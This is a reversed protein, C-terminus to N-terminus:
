EGTADPAEPSLVMMGCEDLRLLPNEIAVRLTQLDRLADEVGEYVQGFENELYVKRRELSRRILADDRDFKARSKALAEVVEEREWIEKATKERLERLTDRLVMPDIIRAQADPRSGLNVDYVGAANPRKVYPRNLKALLANDTVPEGDTDTLLDISFIPLYSEARRHLDPRRREKWVAAESSFSTSLVWVWRFGVWVEEISPDTRWTAYATGRDDWNSIRELANILSCGPRLLIPNNTSTQALTRRWTSPRDLSTELVRQWPIRPLLPRDWIYRQTEDRDPHPPTQGIHLVGNMWNLVSKNLLDEDEEAEEMRDILSVADDNINAIQDLAHQEDLKKREEKVIEAVQESLEDACGGGEFLFRCWIVDDIEELKFQIDSVSENFIRFGNMLVAMWAYWPADEDYDPLFIRHELKPLKRGFRDLRGIRQELRGVDAPLDLHFMASVFQLNLGEEADQSGILIWSQADDKFAAIKEERASEDSADSLNLVDYPGFYMRLASYVTAADEVDSTFCAIKPTKRTPSRLQETRWAKLEQSLTALRTERDFDSAAVSKLASLYEGEGDFIPAMTDLHRAIASRSLFSISVLERWRRSIEKDERTTAASAAVQWSVLADSLDTSWSTNDPVIRVHSLNDWPEARPRMAWGETDKRRSRLLRDHIRYTRAIHDRLMMTAQDRKETNEGSDLVEQAISIVYPDDPFMAMAGKAQTKVVFASGGPQMTMLLRGVRQRSLVKRRFGELDGKPYASPDLLHLLGFLRAENGLAPTASLLLLSEAMHALAEVQDAIPDTHDSSTAIVRHAEDIVLLDPAHRITECVGYGLVRIQDTDPDIYFRSILEKRWQSVLKDPVLVVVRLSPRDLLMQRIICGAEITKGLGVEDALLYRVLTDQLVKRVNSIQHPMLDIASSYAGTLGECASLLNRIGSLATRRRDAVAQTESCGKALTEAPDAYVDLCRVYLATEPIEKNEQNPFRVEYLTAADDENLHSIVRGVRWFGPEIEVFVRTEKPLDIRTLQDVAINETIREAVSRFFEITAINKNSEIVKAFVRSDGHVFVIGNQVFGMGDGTEVM